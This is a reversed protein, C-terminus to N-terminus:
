NKSLKTKISKASFNNGLIDWNEGKLGHKAMYYVGAKYKDYPKFDMRNGKFYEKLESCVEPWLFPNGVKIVFHIHTGSRNTFPEVTYFIRIDTREGYSDIIHNIAQQVRHFSQKSNYENKFAITCFWDWGMLYVQYLFPDQTIADVLNKLQTCEQEIALHKAYINTKTILPLHEEPILRKKNKIHTESWLDPNREYYRYITARSLGTKESTEKLNFLKM